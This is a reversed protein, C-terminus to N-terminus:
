VPKEKEFSKDYDSTSDRDELKRKSIKAEDVKDVLNLSESIDKRVNNDLLDQTQLDTLSM